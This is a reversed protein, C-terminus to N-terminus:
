IIIKVNLHYFVASVFRYHSEYMKLVYSILRLQDYILCDVEM